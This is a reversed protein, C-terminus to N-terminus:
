RVRRRDAVRAHLVVGFLKGVPEDGRGEPNRNTGRREGAVEVLEQREHDDVIAGADANRRRGGHEGRHRERRPAADDDLAAAMHFAQGFGVRDEEVLGPRQGPAMWLHKVDNGVLTPDIRAPQDPEGRRRFAPERMRDRVRHAGLRLFQQDVHRHALLRAISQPEADLALDVSMVDMDAALAEQALAADLALFRRAVANM